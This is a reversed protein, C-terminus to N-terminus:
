PERSAVIDVLHLLESVVERQATDQEYRISVKKRASAVDGCAKGRAILEKCSEPMPGWNGCEVFRDSLFIFKPIAEGGNTLFRAFVDPHQERNIYRVKLSPGAEAMRQLVPAHRVVDGCWDEAIAVVHVPRPLAALFGAVTPELTLALRQAELKDRQEASEAAALWAAYDLGSEFVAKWDILPLTAPRPM